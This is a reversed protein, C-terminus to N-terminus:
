WFDFERYLDFDIFFEKMLLDKYPLSFFINPEPFFRKSFVRWRFAKHIHIYLVFFGFVFGFILLFFLM